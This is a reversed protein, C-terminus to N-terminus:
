ADIHEREKRLREKMQGTIPAGLTAEGRSLGTVQDHTDDLHLGHHILHLYRYGDRDASLEGERRKLNFELLLQQEWMRFGSM